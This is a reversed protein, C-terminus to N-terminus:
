PRYEIVAAALLEVTPETGAVVELCDWGTAVMFSYECDRMFWSLFSEEQWKHGKVKFTTHAPRATKGSAEWMDVLGHEDLVRFASVDDFSFVVAARKERSLFVAELAGVKNDKSVPLELSFGESVFDVRQPAHGYRLSVLHLDDNEVLTSWPAFEIGNTEENPDSPRRQM